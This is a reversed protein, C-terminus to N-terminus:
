LAGELQLLYKKRELGGDYGTLAGNHGIVRHCPVVISVPNRGIAAGVARMARPRDLLAAHHGYTSTTGYRIALLAQWVERQFATGRVTLDLPVTFQSRRGAFYEDLEAGTQELLAHQRVEQWDEPGHYSRQDHFYIGCIGRASSVLTLPGLPSPHLLYQLRQQDM